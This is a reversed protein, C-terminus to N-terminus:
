TDADRNDALYHLASGPAGARGAGGRGEGGRGRHGGLAAMPRDRANGQQHFSGGARGGRRQPSEVGSELLGVCKESMREQSWKRQSTSFITTNWCVGLAAAPRGLLIPVMCGGVMIYLGFHAANRRAAGHSQESKIMFVCSFFKPCLKTCLVCVYIFFHFLDSAQGM